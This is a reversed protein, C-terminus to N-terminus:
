IKEILSSQLWGKRGDPLAVQAWGAQIDLITITTGEPVLSLAKGARTDNMLPADNQM